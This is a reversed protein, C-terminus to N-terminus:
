FLKICYLLKSESVIVHFLTVDPPHHFGLLCASGSIRLSWPPIDGQKNGGYFANKYKKELKGL